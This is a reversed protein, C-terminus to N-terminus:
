GQGVSSLEAGAVHSYPSSSSLCCLRPFNVFAQLHPRAVPVYSQPRLKRLPHESYVSFQGPQRPETSQASAHSGFPLQNLEMDLARAQTTPWTGLLPCKLLLWVTINREGKGERFCYFIKLFFISFISIITYIIKTLKYKNNSHIFYKLNM